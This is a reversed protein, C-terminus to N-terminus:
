EAEKEREIREHLQKKFKLIEENNSYDRRTSYDAVIGTYYAIAAMVTEFSDIPKLKM